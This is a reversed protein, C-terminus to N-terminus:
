GASDVALALMRDVWEKDVTAAPTLLFEELEPCTFERLGRDLKNFATVVERLCDNHRSVVEDIARLALAIHTMSATSLNM